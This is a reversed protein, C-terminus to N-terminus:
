KEDLAKLLMRERYSQVAITAVHLNSSVTAGVAKRYVPIWDDLGDTELSKKVGLLLPTSEDRAVPAKERWLRPTANIADIIPVLEQHASGNGDLAARLMGAAGFICPLLQTLSALEAGLVIAAAGANIDAVRQGLDRSSKSFLWWLIDTEEAQRGLDEALVELTRNMARMMKDLAQALEVTPAEAFATKNDDLLKALKRREADAQGTKRVRLAEDELYTSCLDLLPIPPPAPQTGQLTMTTVALAAVDSVDTRKDLLEVVAAGALVQREFANSTAFAADATRFPATFRTDFAPNKPALSLALRVLDIAEALNVSEALSSVGAARKSVIEGDHQVGASLLWDPFL